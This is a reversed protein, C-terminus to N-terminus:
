RLIRKYMTRITQKDFQIPNNKLRIPNVSNALIDIDNDRSNSQPFKMQYDYLIKRFAIIAEEPSSFGMQCAINSFIQVLENNDVQNKIADLMEQWVEPFCIAVANGHPIGYLSTIKYSMAHPATTATINIAKGALNSARMIRKAVEEKFDNEIYADKNEMILAIAEKSYKISEDTHNVNWWSEIAQCLADLMTCKKQYMPLSRLVSPEFVIYDPVTKDNGLSEKKGDRYVVIHKTSESGTGATTPIAILPIRLNSDMKICKAIDIASGGGVAIIADCGNKKLIEVGKDVDDHLPNSSFNDFVLYPIDIDELNAKINLFPFSSDCVLLWKKSNLEKLILELNSIGYKEIQKM